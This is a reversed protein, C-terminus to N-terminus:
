LNRWVGNPLPLPTLDTFAVIQQCVSNQLGNEGLAEPSEDLVVVPTGADGSRPETEPDGPRGGGPAPGSSADGGGNAWELGLRRAPAGDGVIAAGATDGGNQSEDSEVQKFVVVTHTKKAANEQKRLAQKEEKEESRRLWQRGHCRV